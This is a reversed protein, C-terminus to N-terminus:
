RRWSAHTSFGWSLTNVSNRESFFCVFSASFWITLANTENSSAEVRNTGAYVAPSGNSESAAACWGVSSSRSRCNATEEDWRVRVKCIFGLGLPEICISNKSMRVSTFATWIRSDSVNKLMWFFRFRRRICVERPLRGCSSCSALRVKRRCFTHSPKTTEM